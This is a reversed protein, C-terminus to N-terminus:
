RCLFSGKVLFSDLIVFADPKRRRGVPLLFFKSSVSSMDCALLPDSVISCSLGSLSLLYLFKVASERRVQLCPQRIVSMGARTQPISLDTKSNHTNKKVM